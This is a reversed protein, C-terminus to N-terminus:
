RGQDPSCRASTSACLGRANRDNPIQAHDRGVFIPDPQAVTRDDLVVDFPSLLV